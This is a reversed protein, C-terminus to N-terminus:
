RWVSVPLKTTAPRANRVCAITVPPRLKPSSRVLHASAGLLARPRTRAMRSAAQRALSAFEIRRAAPSARSVNELGAARILLAGASGFRARRRRRTSTKRAIVFRVAITSTRRIASPASRVAPALETTRQDPTSRSAKVRRVIPSSAASDIAKGALRLLSTNIPRARPPRFVTAQKRSNVRRASALWRSRCASEPVPESGTRAALM